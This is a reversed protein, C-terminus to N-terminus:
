SAQGSVASICRAFTSTTAFGNPRAKWRSVAPKWCTPRLARAQACAGREAGGARRPRGARQHRRRDQRNGAGDRLSLGLSPEDLLLLKPRAMLARGFRWCRSSAAPSRRATSPAGSRSGPPFARLRSGPGAQDRGQRTQPVRGHEPERLGHARSLCAPGRARARHRAQGSRRPALTDIRAGDFWIEGKSARVLGSVTRLTTSKGAGNAGILTVIDGEGVGMSVARLATVKNYHVTLSKIEFLM